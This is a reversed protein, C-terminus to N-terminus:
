RVCRAAAAPIDWRVIFAALLPGAAVMLLAPRYTGAAPLGILLPGVASGLQIVQYIPGYIRGFSHPGFCEATLVPQLAISVGLTSGFTASGVILIWDSGGVASILLGTAQVLCIVTAVNRSPCRNGLLAVALQALMNTIVTVTVVSAAGVLGFRPQLFPVQHILFGAQAIMVLHFGLALAWFARTRAAQGLTWATDSMAVEAEKASSSNGDPLLGPTQPGDEVVWLALPVVVAVALVALTLGGALGGWRELLAANLPALFVGGLSGGFIVAGMARRRGRVFWRSVIAGLTVTHLSAYGTSLLLFAPYLQWMQRTLGLAVAGAGLAASGLILLRRPGHRDILPGIIFGVVGAWIYFLTPGVSLTSRPWGYEKIFFGIFVGQNYVGVGWTTWAVLHCAGVVYWGYYLRSAGAPAGRRLGDLDVDVQATGDASATLSQRHSEM